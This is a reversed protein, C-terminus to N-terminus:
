KYVMNGNKDKGGVHIDPLQSNIQDSSRFLRETIVFVEARKAADLEHNLKIEFSNTNPASPTLGPLAVTYLVNAAVIKTGEPFIISVNLDRVLDTASIEYSSIQRVCPGDRSPFVGSAAALTKIRLHTGLFSQKLWEQAVALVTGIIVTAVLFGIITLSIEYKKRRVFDVFGM